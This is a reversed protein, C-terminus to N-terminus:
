WLSLGYPRSIQHIKKRRYFSFCGLPMSFLCHLAGYRVHMFDGLELRFAGNYSKLLETHIRLQLRDGADVGSTAM